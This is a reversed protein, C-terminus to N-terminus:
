GPFWCRKKWCKPVTASNKIIKFYSEIFNNLKRLFDETISIEDLYIKEKYNNNNLSLLTFYIHVKFQEDASSLYDIM